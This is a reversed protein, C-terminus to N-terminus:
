FWRKRHFFYLMGCVTAVLLSLAFPYGYRWTLEPMNWPSRTDFNMGYLGVIFSLPMFITSIVTLVKMIENMRNSVMSMQFERLDATLERYTDVLDLLQIVHDFCDRLFVRTELKILQLDDRVLENVMDRHPRIARRLSLLKHRVEHLGHFQTQPDSQSLEEDYQDLQDGISDVIPFYSDIVSDLLAYALYDVGGSRLNARGSRIRERVPDWSDGVREQFTILVGAKLFFSIQETNYGEGPNSARAVIFLHDLFVDVKARQHVNVVDELALPHLQLLDGLQSISTATGLGSVDIWVVAWKDLLPAIEAVRTVAQEHVAQPSYCMVRIATQEANPDTHITGPAVGIKSRRRLKMKARQRKSIGNGGSKM